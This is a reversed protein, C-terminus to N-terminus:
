TTEGIPDVLACAKIKLNHMDNLREELEGIEQKLEKRSRGVFGPLVSRIVVKLYELRKHPNWDSPIQALLEKIEEKAVVLKCPYLKTVDCSKMSTWKWMYKLMIQSNTLGTM